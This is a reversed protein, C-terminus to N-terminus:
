RIRDEWRTTAKYDEYAQEGERESIVLMVRHFAYIAVAVGIFVVGWSMLDLRISMVMDSLSETPPFVQAISLKM